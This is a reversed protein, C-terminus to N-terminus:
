GAVAGAIRMLEALGIFALTEDWSTLVDGNIPHRQLLAQLGAFVAQWGLFFAMAGLLPHGRAGSFVVAFLTVFALKVAFARLRLWSAQDLAALAAIL